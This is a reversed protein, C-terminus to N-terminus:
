YEYREIEERYAPKNPNNRLIQAALSRADKRGQDCSISLLRLGEAVEAYRERTNAYHAANSIAEVITKEVMYQQLDTLQDAYKSFCGLREGGSCFRGTYTWNSQTPLQNLLNFINETLGEEKYLELMFGNDPRMGKKLQELMKDRYAPWQEEPLMSRCTRFFDMREENRVDNNLFLQRCSECIGDVDETKRCLDFLRKQWEKREKWGLGTSAIHSQCLAKASEYDDAAMLNEYKLMSIEDLYLYAEITKDVGEDYGLQRLLSIKWKVYYTKDRESTSTRINKDVEKLLEEKTLLVARADNIIGSIDCPLYSRYVTSDKLKKLEEVIGFKRERTMSNTSVLINRLIELAQENGYNSYAYNYDEYVFDDKFEDALTKLLHLVGEAATEVNGNSNLFDLQKLLRKIDKRITPWDLSSGYRRAGGKKKHKFCDEVAQKIDM